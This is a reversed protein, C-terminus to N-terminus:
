CSILETQPQKGQCAQPVGLSTALQCHSSCTLTGTSFVLSHSTVLLWISASNMRSASIISFMFFSMLTSGLVSGAYAGIFSMNRRKISAVALLSFIDPSWFQKKRCIWHSVSILLKSEPLVVRSHIWSRWASSQVELNGQM